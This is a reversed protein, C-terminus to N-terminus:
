ALEKRLFDLGERVVKQTEIKSTCVYECLAFDEPAVEYIGLQEMKDIDKAMIAKVLFEPLIDMPMVKDYEGSMIFARKGGNVNTDAVYEKKSNILNTLWSFYSRSTSFKNMRPMIWGLFEDNKDGEPIVTIQQARAGLFGDKGVSDGTLVNGSIVRVNSESLNLINKLEAGPYTLYYGLASESVSSGTLAVLKSFDIAGKKFAKGITVVDYPNITWVVDGKNIPAIHHIQVGVNGAPHPGTINCIEVKAGKIKLFNSSSNNTSVTIYVKGKTLKSIADVGLQLEEAFDRLAYDYSPALPNSDFASIFIDRPQENPNVVVDYPRQKFFAFFGANLLKSKVEDASLQAPATKDFPVSEFKGDSKLRVELVKRRDGRRVEEVIGSCPSVFKLEPNAKDYFLPSGVKVEDGEKVIMKPTMGHFDSPKVSFAEPKLEGKFTEGAKGKLKIDLGKKIKIAEAM